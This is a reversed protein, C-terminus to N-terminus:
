ITIISYRAGGKIKKEQIIYGYNILMDKISTWKLLRGDKNKINLETCLLKKDDKTLARDLYGQPVRIAMESVDKTHVYLTDIDHRVRGRAQTITDIDTSHVVVYDVDSKINIGTECSANIILVQVGDSIKENVLLDERAQLDKATMTHTSNNMSWVCATSINREELVARVENMATIHPVYILGKKDAPLERVLKMINQYKVETNQEYRQLEANVPVDYIVDSFTNRVQKPTATIAVVIAQKNILNRINMLAVEHLNVSNDKMPIKAWKIVSQLEDCVVFSTDDRWPLENGKHICLVAYTAYTMATIGKHKYYYEGKYEKLEGRSKFADLGNRSDILLLIDDGWFSEKWLKNEVLTTKGAGCPATILNLKGEKFDKTNIVGDECLYKRTM